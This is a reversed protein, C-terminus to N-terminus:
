LREIEKGYNVIDKEMKEYTANDEANILGNEDRHSDLFAKAQEWLRARKEILENIKTM